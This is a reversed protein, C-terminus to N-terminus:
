VQKSSRVPALGDIEDFFIISPQRKQAEAFLLRLQRESEGVWKSLVDAGKRMFFSVQKGSKAASAALARACLTKGTGPPGHLLVGRPPNIHFRQFVEPYVLPLFVMEKLSQVYHDLGGIDSFSISTDVALPTIEPNKAKPAPASAFLPGGALALADPALAANPLAAGDGGPALDARGAESLLGWMHDNRDQVLDEDSDGCIRRRPPLRHSESARGGGSRHRFSTRRRFKKQPSSSRLENNQCPSYRQVEARVRTSRREPLPEEEVDEFDEEEEESEEDEAEPEEESDAAAPQPAHRRSSRGYRTTRRGGDNGAGDLADDDDVEDYFHVTTRNRRVPYRRSGDEGAQRLRKRQAGFNGRPAAGLGLADDDDDLIRRNGNSPEKEPSSEIATGNRLQRVDEFHSDRSGRRTGRSKEEVWENEKLTDNEICERLVPDLRVSARRARRPTADNEEIPDEADDEYEAYSPRM